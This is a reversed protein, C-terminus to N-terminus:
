IHTGVLEAEFNKSIKQYVKLNNFIRLTHGPRQKKLCKRIAAKAENPSVTRNASIEKSM